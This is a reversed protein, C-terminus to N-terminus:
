SQQTARGVELEALLREQERLCAAKTNRQGTPQSETWNLLQQFMEWKQRPSIHRNRKAEEAALLQSFEDNM